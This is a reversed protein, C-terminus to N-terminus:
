AEFGPLPGLKPHGFAMAKFLAGMGRGGSGTLRDLAREVEVMKSPAATGKLAVARQEIGLRRLFEGQHCGIDLVRAQPPIWRRAVRARWDQLVRDVVRM